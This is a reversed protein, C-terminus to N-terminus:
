MKHTRQATRARLVSFIRHIGGGFLLLFYESAFGNERKGSIPPNALFLISAAIAGNRPPFTNANVLKNSRQNKDVSEWAPTKKSGGISARAAWAMTANPTQFWLICSKILKAFHFILSHQMFFSYKEAM